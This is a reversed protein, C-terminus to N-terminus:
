RNMIVNIQRSQGQADEEADLARDLEALARSEEVDARDGQGDNRLLNAFAGRRITERLFHPITMPEWYDTNTVANGTNSDALSRYCEKTTSDYVVDGTAYTTGVEYAVRTFEIPESRYQVWVSTLAIDPIEIGRSSLSYKLSRGGQGLLPNKSWVSDVAQIATEGSATWPVYMAGSADETVDREETRTLMSWFTEEWALRAWYTMADAVEEEESADESWNSPNRGWLRLVKEYLANFTM